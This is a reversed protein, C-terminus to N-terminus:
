RNKRRPKVPQSQSERQPQQGLLERRAAACIARSCYFPSLEEATTLWEARSVFRWSFGPKIETLRNCWECRLAGRNNMLRRRQVPTLDHFSVVLVTLHAICLAPSPPIFRRWM